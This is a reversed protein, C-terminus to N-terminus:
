SLVKGILLGIALAGLLYFWWSVGRRKLADRERRVQEVESKAQTVLAMQEKMTNEYTVSVSKLTEEKEKKSQDLQTKLLLIQEDYSKSLDKKVQDIFISKSKAQEETAQDVWSKLSSGYHHPLDFKRDALKDLLTENVAHGLASVLLANLKLAEAGIGPDNFIDLGGDGGGRVVAIVQAGSGNLARLWRIIETRSAFSCRYESISFRASAEALGKDFDKNVIAASGYLNAIRVPEGKYISEKVLAEFDRYGKTIKQQILSFRKLDEESLPSAEKQLVDDITFVLEISSFSVRKEM